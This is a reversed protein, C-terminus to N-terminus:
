WNVPAVTAEKREKKKKKLIKLFPVTRARSFRRQGAVGAGNWSSEMLIMLNFVVDCYSVDITKLLTTSTQIRWDNSKSILHYTKLAFNSRNKLFRVEDDIEFRRNNWNESPSGNRLVLFFLLSFSFFIALCPRWLSEMFLWHSAFTRKKKNNQKRQRGCASRPPTPHPPPDMEWKTRRLIRWKLLPIVSGILMDLQRAVLHTFLIAAPFALRHWHVLVAIDM